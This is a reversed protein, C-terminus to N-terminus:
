LLFSMTKEKILDFNGYKHDSGETEILEINPKNVQSFFMKLDEFSTIPDNSNQIIITPVDYDQVWQTLNFNKEKAWNVPFGVFVCRRPHILGKHVGYILLMAGASKAFIVCDKDKVNMSLKKLESEFDITGQETGWHSYDQKYIEQFSGAFADSAATAWEKNSESNGPLIVLRM